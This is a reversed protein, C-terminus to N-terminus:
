IPEAKDIVRAPQIVEGIAFSRHVHILRAKVRQGLHEGGNALDIFYGDCWAVSRPLMLFPEEPIQCEVVQGPRYRVIQREMEQLDGPVIRYDEQHYKENARVFLARHTERELREIMEGQPGIFYAAVRPNLTILFAEHDTDICLRRVEREIKAALTEASLVRGRGRCYPCPETLIQTLSEGTRKRTMEILGLPSLYTIKTRVRDKKLAKELATMLHQRDKPNAMDIFDLIIIGGLDRLRLQRAIETAADLNTKLITDALSTTGIFKGTNVDIATVAETEDITIYGGSKLWVKHRTLREIEPEIGYRDFIPEPDSYYIVRNKLKPAIFNVLDLVKEYHERSDIVFKAVDSSFVDRVIKYVLSLDQHVVGPQPTQQFKQQIQEWLRWLFEYDQRLEAEGRGEAETRVILGCPLHRLKYAIKRLREREQVGEIKRSVGVNNGEPMLVLYRGPLSIRTSVRAGKTGRPAKVVQVLLEQGPKVLDRIRSSTELVEEHNRERDNGETDAEDAEPIVDGAYLFANRELGIDVFAADMGPLVNVVRAKYLSGVIREEREIHLEVLRGQEIIAVRTERNDINVIIEKSM